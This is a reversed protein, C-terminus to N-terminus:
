ALHVKSMGLLKDLEDLFGQKMNPDSFPMGAAFERFEKPDAGNERIEDYAERALQRGKDYSEKPDPADEPSRLRHLGNPSYGCNAQQRTENRIPVFRAMFDNLSEPTLFLDGNVKFFAEFPLYDQGLWELDELLQPLENKPRGASQLVDNALKQYDGENELYDFDSFLFLKEKTEPLFFPKGEHAKLLDTIEDQGCADDVLIFQKMDSTWVAYHRHNAYSKRRLDEHLEKKTLKPYYARFCTLLDNEIIAGYLHAFALYFKTYEKAPILNGM